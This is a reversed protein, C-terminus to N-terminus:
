RSGEPSLHFLIRSFAVSFQYAGGVLQYRYRETQTEEEGKM